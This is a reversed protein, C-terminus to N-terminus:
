MVANGDADLRHGITQGDNNYVFTFRHMVGKYYIKAPVGIRNPKKETLILIVNNQIDRLERKLTNISDRAAIRDAVPAYYDESIVEMQEIKTQIRTEFYSYSLQTNFPSFISDVEGVEMIKYEHWDMKNEIYQQIASQHPNQACAILSCLLALSLITQKM